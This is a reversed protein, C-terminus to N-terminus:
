LKLGLAALRQPADDAFPNIIEVGGIVAGHQLDESLLAAASSRMATAILLADWYSFREAAWWDLAIELADEDAAAVPFLKSWGKVASAAEIRSLVGKRVASHAFEGLAQLLVIGAQAAEAARLLDAAARQKAAERWDFVYFHINADFAIM